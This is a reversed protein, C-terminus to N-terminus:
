VYSYEIEYEITFVYRCTDGNYIERLGVYDINIITSGGITGSQGRLLTRITYVCNKYAKTTSVVDFQVRSKGTNTTGFAYPTDADIITRYVLYPCVDGEQANMWYIRQASYRTLTCSGVQTKNQAILTESVSLTLAAVNTVTFLSTNNSGSDTIYGKYGIIWGDTVFSGTERTISNATQAINNSTSLVNLTSLNTILTKDAKLATDLCQEITM